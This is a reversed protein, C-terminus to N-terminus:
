PSDTAPSTLSMLLEEEWDHLAAYEQLIVNHQIQIFTAGSEVQVPELPNSRYFAFFRAEVEKPAQEYEFAISLKHALLYDHTAVFVQVGAEALALLIGPLQSILRPNLNSEPEDWFLVTGKSISANSVLHSLLGLKRLGEAVLHAELKLSGFEMYFRNRNKTVRAGGLAQELHAHLKEAAEKVEGQPKGRDLAVCVDYYTEDFSLTEREYLSTFGEYMALVDRTLLFLSSPAEPWSHHTVALGAGESLTFSTQGDGEGKVWVESGPEAALNRVLHELREDEPKFVASLKEGLKEQMEAISALNAQAVRLVSYLLMMVHSKGTGNEGILINLGGAFDLSAKEIASFNKLELTKLKM